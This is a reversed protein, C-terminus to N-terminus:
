EAVNKWFRIFQQELGIGAELAHRMGPPLGQETIDFEQRTQEYEALKQQHAALQAAALKKPDGGFFLKLTAPDRAEYLESSPEARWANLEALGDDTLRYLRRRRGTQEREEHLLGAKALREAETYLQTHPLAWFNVVSKASFLKLDYVTAPQCHEVLGLIVYSTTTLRVTSM